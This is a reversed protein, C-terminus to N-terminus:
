KPSIRAVRLAFFVSSTCSLSRLLRRLCLYEDDDKRLICLICEDGANNLASETIVFVHFACLSFRTCASSNM